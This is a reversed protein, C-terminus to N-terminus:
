GRSDSGPPVWVDVVSVRGARAAALGAEVAPRVDTPEMVPGIAVAGQARAMGAVDVDPETIRHGIWRNEIPRDRRRAVRGQNREDNYFSRNNTVVFM